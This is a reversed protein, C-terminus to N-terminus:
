FKHELNKLLDFNTKHVNTHFLNNGIITLDIFFLCKM